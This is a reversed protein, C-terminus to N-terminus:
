CPQWNENLELKWQSFDDHKVAAHRSAYNVFVFEVAGVQCGQQVNGEEWELAMNNEDWSCWSSEVETGLWAANGSVHLL